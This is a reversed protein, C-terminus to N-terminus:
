PMFLVFFHSLQGLIMSAFAPAPLGSPARSGARSRQAPSGAWNSMSQSVLGALGCLLSLLKRRCGLTLLGWLGLGAPLGGELGAAVAGLPPPPLRELSALLDFPPPASLDSAHAEREARWAGPLRGM